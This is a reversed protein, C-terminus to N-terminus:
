GGQFRSRCSYERNGSHSPSEQETTTATAFKPSSKIPTGAQALTGTFHSPELFEDCTITVKVEAGNKNAEITAGLQGNPDGLLTPDENTPKVTATAILYSPFLQSDWGTITTVNSQASASTALAVITVLAYLTNKM